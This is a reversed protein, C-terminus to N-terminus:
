EQYVIRMAMILYHLHFIFLHFVKFVTPIRRSGAFAKLEINKELAQM